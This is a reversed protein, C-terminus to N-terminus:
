QLGQMYGALAEIEDDLLLEAVNRMMQNMGADSRREGSQYAHLTTALYTAHQHSVRPFGALPNGMGGPGHCAICAPIGRDPIGGRYIRQGMAVIAPDAGKAVMAQDSFYAAIDEMDQESLTSAFGRMGADLREGAKFANLQNVIYRAHQGALAPWMPSVSNGDTGHCAACAVSKTRGADPSGSGFPAEQGAAPLATLSVMTLTALARRAGTRFLSETSNM